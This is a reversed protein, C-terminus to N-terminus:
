DLMKQYLLILYYFHFFRKREQKQYVTRSGNASNKKAFYILLWIMLFLRYTSNVNRNYEGINEHININTSYKIFDKPDNCHKLGVIERKNMLLRQKAEYSDTANIYITDINIKYSILCFLGSTKGSGSGGMILM